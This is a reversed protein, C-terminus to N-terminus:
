AGSRAFLEPTMKRRQSQLARKIRFAWPLWRYCGCLKLRFELKSDAPSVNIRGTIFEKPTTNALLPLTSFVREYGEERCCTVLEENFAGYPFSFLKVPKRVLRELQTRSERIESKAENKELLTLMPHTVTHSGILVTEPLTQLEEGTLTREQPLQESSYRSWGPPTGLSGSVVFLVAPIRFKKLEPLANELFSVLGDDFTVLVSRQFSDADQDLGEGLPTALRCLLRMQHAFATREVAPIAHYLLVVCTRPWRRGAMSFVVRRACDFLFVACSVGLVIANKLTM